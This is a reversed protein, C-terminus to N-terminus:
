SRYAEVGRAAVNMGEVAEAVSLENGETELSPRDVM